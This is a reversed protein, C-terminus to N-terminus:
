GDEIGVKKLEDILLVEFEVIYMEKLRQLARSYARNRNLQREAAPTGKVKYRSTYETHADKCDVCQEENNYRHQKYGKETGHERPAAKFTM